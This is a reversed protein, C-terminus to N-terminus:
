KACRPGLIFSSDKFKDLHLGYFHCHRLIIQSSSISVGSNLTLGNGCHGQM